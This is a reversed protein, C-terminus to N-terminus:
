ASAECRNKESSLANQKEGEMYNKLFQKISQKLLRKAQEPHSLRFQKMIDNLSCGGAYLKLIKVANDDTLNIKLPPESSEDNFEVNDKVWKLRQVERLIILTSLIWMSASAYYFLPHSFSLVMLLMGLNFTFIALFLKLFGDIFLQNFNAM